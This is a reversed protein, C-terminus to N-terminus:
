CGGVMGSYASAAQTSGPGVSSVIATDKLFVAYVLALLLIGIFIWLLLKRRELKIKKM